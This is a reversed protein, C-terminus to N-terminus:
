IILTGILAAYRIFKMQRSPKMFWVSIAFFLFASVFPNIFLIFEQMNNALEINFLFRYIIYTKIGFLLSAFLYLPVKARKVSMM